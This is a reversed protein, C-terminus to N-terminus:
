KGVFVKHISRAGATEVTLYYMGAPLTSTQLQVQNNGSVLAKRLNFLRRGANDLLTFGATESTTSTVGAYIIGNSFFVNTVTFLGDFRLMQVPSYIVSGNKDVLKIRYYNAGKIPLSDTFAYTSKGDGSVQGITAFVLGDISREVVTHLLTAASGAVWNLLGTQQRAQATFSQLTVPLITQDNFRVVFVGLRSNTHQPAAPPTATPTSITTVHMPITLQSGDFADNYVPAGYYNQVDTVTYSKSALDPRDFPISLTATTAANVVTVFFLNPDYKNARVYATIGPDAQSWTSQADVGFANKWSTFTQGDFPISSVSIYRNNNWVQKPAAQSGELTIVNGNPYAHFTNNQVNFDSFNNLMSSAAYSGMLYNGTLVFTSDVPNIGGEGIHINKRISSNGGDTADRYFVNDRVKIERAKQNESGVIFNVGRVINARALAGSNFVTNSDVNVGDIKGNGSYIQVGTYYNKFMINNVISKPRTFDNNQVYISPGHGRDSGQIGNYYMICGYVESGLSTSWYGIGGGPCDHIVFNIVRINEGFIDVGAAIQIDTATAGPQASTHNPSSSTIELGKFWTHRGNITLTTVTNVIGTYADLKVKEAPYPMVYIPNAATGQLSSSFYSNYTGQRIFITDGPKVAGAAGDLAYQLTWPNSITGDGSTTGTLAAYRVTANATGATLFLCLGLLTQQIARFIENSQKM